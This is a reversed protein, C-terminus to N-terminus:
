EQFTQSYNQINLIKIMSFGHWFLFDENVEKEEGRM